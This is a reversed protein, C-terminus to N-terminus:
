SPNLKPDSAPGLCNWSALNLWGGGIHWDFLYNITFPEINVQAGSDGFDRWRYRGLKELRQWTTGETLAANM